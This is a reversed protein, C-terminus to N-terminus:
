FIKKLIQKILIGIIKNSHIDFVTLLATRNKSNPNKYEAKILANKSEIFCSASNHCVNMKKNQEQHNIIQTTNKQLLKAFM